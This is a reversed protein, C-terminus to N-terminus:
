TSVASGDAFSAPNMRPYAARTRSPAFGASRGTWCAVLTSNIMLRLVAFDSLMVTGSGGDPRAFANADPQVARLLEPLNAINRHILATADSRPEASLLDPLRAINAAIRRAEGRTLPSAAARRGPDEEFYVFALAQGNSDRVIFCPQTEEVTWPPPFRRKTGVSV